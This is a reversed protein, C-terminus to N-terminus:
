EYLSIGENLIEYEFTNKLDAREYFEKENYVLIDLPHTIIPILARRIKRMIDLKRQNENTIICLDIDSEEDPTGYAYSGFLIIKKTKLIQLIKNVLLKIEEKKDMKNNNNM